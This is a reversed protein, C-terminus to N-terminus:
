EDSVSATVVILLRASALIRLESANEVAIRGRLPGPAADPEVSCPMSASAGDPRRYLPKCVTPVRLLAVIGCRRNVVPYTCDYSRMKIPM